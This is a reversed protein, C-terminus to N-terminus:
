EPSCRASFTTIKDGSLAMLEWSGATMSGDPKASMLNLNDCMETFSVETLELAEVLYLCFLPLAQDDSGSCDITAWYVFGEPDAYVGVHYSTKDLIADDVLIAQYIDGSEPLKTSSLRTVKYFSALESKAFIKEFNNLVEDLTIDAGIHEATTTTEQKTPICCGGLLSLLVAALILVVFFRRMTNSREAIKSVM